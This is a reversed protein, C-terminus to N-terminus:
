MKAQLDFGFCYIFAIKMPNGLLCLFDQWKEDGDLVWRQGHRVPGTRGSTICISSLDSFDM